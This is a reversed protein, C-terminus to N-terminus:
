SEDALLKEAEAESLNAAASSERLNQRLRNAYFVRMEEYDQASVLKVCPATCRRIQHLLCPRTRNNFIGDVCTRLRFVKQLLQITEKVAWANPFPGFYRHRRDVAGRYYSMRPFVHSAIKLYPYSKDDRFLINFRPNLAKILNNELLLAEAETRVVTTELRAIRAVMMGIGWSHGLSVVREKWPVGKAVLPVLRPNLRCRVYIMLMFVSAAILGPIIGAILDPSSRMQVIPRGLEVDCYPCVKDSTTIFARCNPCM